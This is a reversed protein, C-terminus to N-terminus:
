AGICVRIHNEDIRKMCYFKTEENSLTAVGNEGVTCYNGVECTGDDVAVLKGILGVMGWEKRYERSVYEKESDYNPNLVKRTETHAPIIEGTKEDVQEPVEVQETIIAGFVDRLYRDHWEESAIDGIFSPDASIIGVVKEGANALRIKEGDLTVMLGRRDENDPNGDTYEFFEAYDAGSGAFSKLGYSQGTTATRFANSRSGNSTGNGVIFLSGDTSTDGSPATTDKNCRGIVFQTRNAIPDTGLAFCYSDNAKARYGWAISYYSKAEVYNGSIGAGGALSGNGSASVHSNGGIIVANTGTGAKVRCSVSDTWAKDTSSMLGNSSSTAVSYTPIYSNINGTHIVDNSGVKAGTGDFYVSFRSTGDNSFVNWCAASTDKAKFNGYEDTKIGGVSPSILNAVTQSGINGSHIVTRDTGNQNFYFTGNYARISDTAGDDRPFVVGETASDASDALRLRNVGVINGNNLNLADKDGGSFTGSDFTITGTMTGGSKPLAYSSINGSHIVTNHNFNFTSSYQVNDYNISSGVEANLYSDNSQLYWDLAFIDFTTDGVFTVNQAEANETKVVIGGYKVGNYTFTCPRVESFHGKATFQAKVLHTAGHSGCM